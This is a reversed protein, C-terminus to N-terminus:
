WAPGLIDNTWFVSANDYNHVAGALGEFPDSFGVRIEPWVSGPPIWRATEAEDLSGDPRFVGVLEYSISPSEACLRPGGDGGFASMSCEAFTWVVLLLAFTHNMSPKM